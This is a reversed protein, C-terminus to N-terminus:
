GGVGAGIGWGKAVGGDGTLKREISL